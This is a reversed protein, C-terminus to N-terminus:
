VGNASKLYVFFCLIALKMIKRKLINVQSKHFVRVLFGFPHYMYEIRKEVLLNQCRLHPHLSPPLQVFHLHPKFLNHSPASSDLAVCLSMIYQLGRVACLTHLLIIFCAASRM